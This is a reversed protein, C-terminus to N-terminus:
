FRNNLQIKFYELENTLRVLQEEYIKQQEELQKSYIFKQGNLQKEYLKKQDEYLKKQEEFCKKLLTNESNISKLQERLIKIEAFHINSQQDKNNKIHKNSKKHRCWAGSDETFYNCCTCNYKANNKTNNDVINNITNRNDAIINMELINKTIPNETTEKIEKIKNVILDIKKIKNELESNTNDNIYNLIEESKEKDCWLYVSSMGKNEYIRNCRSMRQVIRHINESPNTIFVSDCEPINIGEDLVHVNLLININEDKTFLNIYKKRDEIQTFCDIIEFNIKVNFLIRMWEIINKSEKAMEINSLYMICKKNGNLLISRLIFYIKKILEIGNNKINNNNIQFLELFDNLNLTTYHDDPLYIKFDNIYKNKIADIWKYNFIAKGFVKKNSLYKPTASLFLIKHDSHLIKYFHNNKNNLDNPSLNHYEDIIIYINNLKSIIINIIDCSKFTSIFINKEKMKILKVDRIGDDSILVCNYNKFYNSYNKLTQNCLEKTPAFFIINTHDKALISSIYTKGMGCPLSLIARNKDKLFQYADLQYERIEYKFNDDNIKESAFIENKFPVNIFENKDQTLNKLRNSINGNYYVFCKKNFNARFFYYGALDQVCISGEYNKCQIYHYENDKFGVIDIGIDNRVQSYSIYDTIINEEFLIKEPLNKWLWAFDYKKTHILYNLIYQEYSDGKSKNM